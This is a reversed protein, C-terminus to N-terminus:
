RVMDMFFTVVIKDDIENIEQCYGIVDGEPSKRGGNVEICKCVAAAKLFSILSSAVASCPNDNFEVLMKQWREDGYIASNSLGYLSVVTRVCSTGLPIRYDDLAHCVERPSRRLISDFTRTRSQLYYVSNLPAGVEMSPLCYRKKVAQFARANANRLDFEEKSEIAQEVNQDNDAETM